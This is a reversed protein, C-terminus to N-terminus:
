GRRLLRYLRRQEHRSGTVVVRSGAGVLRPLEERTTVLRIDVTVDLQPALELAGDVVRRQAATVPYGVSLLVIESAADASARIAGVELATQRGLVFIVRTRTGVRM